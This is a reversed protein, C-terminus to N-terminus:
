DIRWEGVDDVVYRSSTVQEVSKAHVSSAVNESVTWGSGGTVNVSSGGGGCQSPSTTRTVADVVSGAAVNAHDPPRGPGKMRTLAESSAVTVTVSELPQELVRDYRTSMECTGGASAPASWTAQPPATM